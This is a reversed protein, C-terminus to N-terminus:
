CNETVRSRIRWISALASLFSLCGLRERLSRLKRSWYRSGRPDITCRGAKAPRKDNQHGQAWSPFQVRREQTFNEITIPTEANDCGSGALLPAFNGAIEPSQSTANVM